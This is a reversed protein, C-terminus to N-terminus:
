NQKNILRMKNDSKVLMYGKIDSDNIIDNILHYQLITNDIHNQENDLKVIVGYGNWIKKIIKGMYIDDIIVYNGIEFLSM